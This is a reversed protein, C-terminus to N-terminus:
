ARNIINNEIAFSILGALNNVQLKRFINKRHTEITFSSLNLNQAIERSTLGEKLLYILEIERKTLKYKKSINDAFFTPEQVQKQIPNVFNVVKGTMVLNITNQLEKATSSKTLYGDGFRMCEKIIEKDNYMSIFIIKVAPHTKKVQMAAEIGNINPMNIDMLILDPPKSYVLRLLQRGDRVKGIISIHKISALTQEIGILYTPHDEAVIINITSEIM